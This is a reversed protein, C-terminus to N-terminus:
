RPYKANAEDAIAMIQTGFDGCEAVKAGILPQCTAKWRDVESQPVTYVEAGASALWAQDNEWEGKLWQDIEDSTKQAEELMINQISSPLKNWSVLNISFGHLACISYSLSVNKAVDTLSFIRMAAPATIVADVTGKEMVSYSDTYPVGTVPAGGMAEILSATSPSIAQVLLGDWDELTKVPKTSIMEVATYNHLCLLKQNFKEELISSLLPAIEPVAEIHADINNFLFPIENAGLRPDSASHASPTIAGMDAAGSRVGDLLEGFALMQEAGYYEITYDPGCRENFADAFAQEIEGYEFLAASAMKLVVPGKSPCAVFSSTLAVILVLSLLIIIKKM